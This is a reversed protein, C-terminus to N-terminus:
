VMPLSVFPGAVSRLSAPGANTQVALTAASGAAVEDALLATLTEVEIGLEVLRGVPSAGELEGRVDEFDIVTDVPASAPMM